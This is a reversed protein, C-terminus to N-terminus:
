MKHKTFDVVNTNQKHPSRGRSNMRSNANEEAGIEGFSNIESKTHFPRRM